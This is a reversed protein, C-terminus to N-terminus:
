LTLFSAILDKVESSKMKLDINGRISTLGDEDFSIDINNISVNTKETKIQENIKKSIFKSIIGTVFKSKINMSDM